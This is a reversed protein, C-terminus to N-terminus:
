ENAPNDPAPPPPPVPAPAPMPVPRDGGGGRNGGRNFQRPPQAAQKLIQDALADVAADGNEKAIKAMNEMHIAYEAIVKKALAKGEELHNKVVTEAATGAAIEKRIAQRLESLGKVIPEMAKQYREMETKAAQVGPLPMQMLGMGMGGGPAREMMRAGPQRQPAPQTEEAWVASALLGVVLAMLVLMKAARLM